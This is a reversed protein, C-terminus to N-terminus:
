NTSDYLDILARRQAERSMKENLNRSATVAADHAGTGDLIRSVLQASSLPSTASPIGFGDFAPLKRAAVPHEFASADLISLPFGEYRATHFYLAPRALVRALGAKSLWGTVEVGADELRHRTSRDGDGVWLFHIRASFDRAHRAMKAFFDPDKQASLRGIMMVTRDTKFGTPGNEATPLVSAVNPLFHTAVKSGLSHALAEEHPSLVVTKVTRSTLMKEALRFAYRIPGPQAMDDFKYCHPEYFVPADVRTVRTYVGAWSSHAHVIDPKLRHVARRVEAIAAWPARPMRHLSRYGSAHTPEEDGSWVLHHDVDPALDVLTDVAKSVGGAYCETVHLVRRRKTM